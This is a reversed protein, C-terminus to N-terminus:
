VLFTPGFDQSGLAALFWDHWFVSSLIPDELQTILAQSVVLRHGWFVVQHVPDVPLTQKWPNIFHNTTPCTKNQFIKLLNPNLSNPSVQFHKFCHPIYCTMSVYCTMSKSASLDIYIYIYINKPPPSPRFFSCRLAHFCGVRTEQFFDDLSVQMGSGTHAQFCGVFRETTPKKWSTGGLFFTSVGTSSFSGRFRFAAFDLPGDPIPLGPWPGPPLTPQNQHGIALSAPISSAWDCHPIAGRGTIKPPFKPFSCSLRCSIIIGSSIRCFEFDVDM